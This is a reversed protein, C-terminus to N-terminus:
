LLSHIKRSCSGCCIPYNKNCVLCASTLRAGIYAFYEPRSFERGCGPCIWNSQCIDFRLDCGCYDCTVENGYEDFASEWQLSWDM